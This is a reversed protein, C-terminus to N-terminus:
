VGLPRKGKSKRQHLYFCSETKPFETGQTGLEPGVTGDIWEPLPTFSHVEEGGGM